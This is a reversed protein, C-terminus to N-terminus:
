LTKFLAITSVGIAQVTISLYVVGRRMSTKDVFRSIVPRGIHIVAFILIVSFIVIVMKYLVLLGIPTSADRHVIGIIGFVAFFVASIPLMGVSIVPSAASLGLVLLLSGLLVPVILELGGQDVAFNAEILVTGLFFIALAIIAMLVQSAVLVPFSKM